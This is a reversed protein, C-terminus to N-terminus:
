SKEDDSEKGILSVNVEFCTMNDGFYDQATILNLFSGDSWTIRPSISHGIHEPVCVSLEESIDPATAIETLIDATTRVEQALELITMDEPFSITLKRDKRGNNKLRRSEDYTLLTRIYESESMEHEEAFHSLMEAEEESFYFNKHINRNRNRDSM